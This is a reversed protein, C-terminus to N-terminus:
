KLDRLGVVRNGAGLHGFIPDVNLFYHEAMYSNDENWHGFYSIVGSYDRVVIFYFDNEEVESLDFSQFRKQLQEKTVHFLSSTFDEDVTSLLRPVGYKDPDFMSRGHYNPTEYDEDFWKGYNRDYWECKIESHTANEINSYAQIYDLLLHDLTIVTDEMLDDLTMYISNM